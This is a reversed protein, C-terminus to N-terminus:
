GLQKQNCCVSGYSFQLCFSTFYFLYCVEMTLGLPRVGSLPQRSSTQARGLGRAVEDAARGALGSRGPMELLAQAENAQRYHFM